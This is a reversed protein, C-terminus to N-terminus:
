ARPRWRKWLADARARVKGDWWLEVAATIEPEAAAAVTARLEVPETLPAPRLYRVDLGATVYPLAAGGLAAWGRKDAELMVAAASHCDLLTGIIGGNLFGLGNDHEPWPTFTATVVGDDGEHSRLRLGRENAHGCGFCPLTPYLREQISSM